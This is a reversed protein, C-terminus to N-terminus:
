SMTGGETALLYSCGEASRSSRSSFFFKPMVRGQFGEQMDCASAIITDIEGREAMVKLEPSAQVNPERLSNIKHTIIMTLRFALIELKLLEAYLVGNIFNIVFSNLLVFFKPVSLLLVWEKLIGGGAKFHAPVSRRLERLKWSQM